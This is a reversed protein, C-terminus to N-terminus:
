KQRRSIHLPPSGIYFYSYNANFRKWSSELSTYYVSQAWMFERELTKPIDGEFIAVYVTAAGFARSYAENFSEPFVIEQITAMLFADRRISVLSKPLVVEKLSSCYGFTGFWIDTLSNGLVVRELNSCGFFAEFGIFKLGDTFEVSMLSKSNCFAYSEVYRLSTQAKLNKLSLTYAFARITIMEVGEPISYTEDLKNRPYLLLSKMDKSFVVGDVSTIKPNDPHVEFSVIPPLGERSTGTNLDFVIKSLTQPFSVSTLSSCNIFNSFYFSTEGEPIRLEKLSTCGSFTEPNKGNCKDYFWLLNHLFHIYELNTAGFFGYSAVECVPLNDIEIPVSYETLQKSQPYSFLTLFVDSSNSKLFLVGDSSIFYRNGEEVFINDLSTCHIFLDFPLNLIEKSITIEKIFDSSEFSKSDVKKVTYENITSPITVYEDTGTYKKLEISNASTVNCLFDGMQSEYPYVPLPPDPEVNDDPDEETNDDPDSQDPNDVVPPEPKPLEGIPQTAYGYWSPTSWGKKDINYLITFDPHAYDFASSDFSKPADGLFTVSRLNSCFSFARSGISLVSAPIIINEINECGSFAQSGIHTVSDPIVISTITTNQAFAKNGIETIPVDKISSPIVLHTKSGSYSSVTLNGTELKGFGWSENKLSIDCGLLCFLITVVVARSVKIM